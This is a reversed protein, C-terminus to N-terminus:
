PSSSWFTLRNGFPDAITVERNGWPTEASSPRSHRYAKANLERCLEEVDSVEVRLHSGPCADGFHESLHLLVGDRELGLYVPSTADPQHRWKEHFGLFGAYFELAKDLDFIRLVVTAAKFTSM